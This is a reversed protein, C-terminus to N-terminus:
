LLEPAPSINTINGIPPQPALEAANGGPVFIADEISVTKESAAQKAAYPAALLKVGTEDVAFLPMFQKVETDEVLAMWRNDLILWHGDDRAALVAHDLRAFNDHVLLIRLQDAAVGAERLAVYKAIAFDECDGFGTSFSGTNNADLPASWLDVVGWQASDSQYRIADNVRQNVLDLKGRGKRERADRVIASFRAAAPTCQAPDALCATLIPQAARIDVEVKRWKSWLLGDPAVLTFLGFPENSRKRDPAAYSGADTATAATDISALQVSSAARAGDGRKALVENITFFRAPAPTLPTSFMPAPAAAPPNSSRVQPTPDALAVVIPKAAPAPDALAVAMPMSPPAPDALAVVTAAAPQVLQKNKPNAGANGVATAIVGALPLIILLSRIAARAPFTASM